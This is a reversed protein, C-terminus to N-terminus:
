GPHPWGSGSSGAPFSLNLLIHLKLATLVRLHRHYLLYACVTNIIAPWPYLDFTEESGKEKQRTGKDERFPDAFGSLTGAHAQPRLVLLTGKPSESIHVFISFKYSMDRSFHPFAEDTDPRPKCGNQGQHWIRNRTNNNGVVTRHQSM